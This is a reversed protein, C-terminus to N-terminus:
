EKILNLLFHIELPYIDNEKWLNRVKFNFIMSDKQHDQLGQKEQNQHVRIMSDM